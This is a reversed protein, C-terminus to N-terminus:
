VEDQVAQWINKWSREMSLVLRGRLEKRLEQSKLGRMLVGDEALSITGTEESVVVSIVDAQESIGLAARHRMGLVIDGMRTAASLPLTCRAAEITRDNVIVAGDHLPSKPNFISLLLARSVRAQLIIGSESVSKLGTGRVIIILAGQKKKALDVAASAIEEISEDVDIRLFMRVIRNRAITSLLRRIEPQFLIVFAIVWIDTLTHLLWGMAKLNIAQALFSFGVIVMMGVFIQAAITGRMVIYLRYFIFSVVAIDFLDILSVTVFGIKFLEM